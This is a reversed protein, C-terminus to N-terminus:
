CHFGGDRSCDEKWGRCRVEKLEASPLTTVTRIHPVATIM